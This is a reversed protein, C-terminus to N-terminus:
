RGHVNKNCLLSNNLGKYYGKSKAIISCLTLLHISILDRFVSGYLIDAIPSIDFLGKQGEYRPFQTVM